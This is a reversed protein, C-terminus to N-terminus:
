LTLNLLLFFRKRSNKKSFAVFLISILVNGEELARLKIVVLALFRVRQKDGLGKRLVLEVNSTALASTQSSEQELVPPIQFHLCLALWPGEAFVGFCGYRKREKLSQTIMRRPTTPTDDETITLVSAAPGPLLTPASQPYDSPQNFIPSTDEPVKKPLPPSNFLSESSPRPPYIARPVKFGRNLATSSYNTPSSSQQQPRILLPPPSPPCPKNFLDSLSLPPRFSRTELKPSSSRTATTTTSSHSLTTSGSAQGPASPFPITELSKTARIAIPPPPAAMMTSPHRLSSTVSTYASISSRDLPIVNFGALQSPEVCQGSISSPFPSNSSMSPSSSVENAAADIFKPAQRASGIRSIVDANPAFTPPPPHPFNIKRKPESEGKIRRLRAESEEQLKKELTRKRYELEAIRVMMEEDEPNAQAAPSPATSKTASSSSSIALTSRQSPPPPRAASDQSNRAIRSALSDTPSEFALNAFFFDSIPKNPM